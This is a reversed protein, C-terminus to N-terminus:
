NMQAKLLLFLYGARGFACLFFAAGSILVSSCSFLCQPSITHETNKLCASSVSGRSFWWSELVSVYIENGRTGFFVELFGAIRRWVGADEWGVVFLYISESVELSKTSHMRLIDKRLSCIKCCVWNSKIDVPFSGM